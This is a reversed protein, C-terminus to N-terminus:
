VTHAQIKGVLPAIQAYWEQNSRIVDPIFWQYFGQFNAAVVNTQLYTTQNTVAAFTYTFKLNSLYPVLARPPPTQGYKDYIFLREAGDL